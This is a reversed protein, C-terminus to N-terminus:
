LGASAAPLVGRSNGLYGAATRFFQDAEDPSAFSRRPIIHALGPQLYILIHDATSDVRYIGRWSARTEGLHTTETIGEPDIAVTHECFLGEFGKQRRGITSLLYGALRSFVFLFVWLASAAVAFGLARRVMPLDPRRLMEVIGFLVAIATHLWLSRRYAPHVGRVHRDLARLDERTNEYTVKM